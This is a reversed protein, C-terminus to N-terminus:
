SQASGGERAARAKLNSDYRMQILEVGLAFFMAFYIFGKPLEFGLAEGTLLTGILLLFALALIKLSAHENIFNSVSDAFIVMVAMAIVIGAVMVPIDNVMGVATVVSDLSFIVDMLAINVVVTVLSQSVGGERVGEDGLEVKHYIESVSKYMLFLGGGLLVISQGTLEFPEGAVKLASITLLPTTLGAIWSLSFLLLLRTALAAGLGFQRAPKQKAKPLRSTLVAIFVLNDIGLVIELLSLTLVAIWASPHTFTALVEGM